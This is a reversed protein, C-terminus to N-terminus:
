DELVQHRANGHATGALGTNGDLILVRSKEWKHDALRVMGDAPAATM